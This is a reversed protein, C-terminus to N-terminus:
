NPVSLSPCRGPTRGEPNLGISKGEYRGTIGECHSTSGSYGVVVGVVLDWLSISMDLPGIGQKVAEQRVIYCIKKADEALKDVTQDTVPNGLRNLDAPVYWDVTISLYPRGDPVLLLSGSPRSLVWGRQSIKFEGGTAGYPMIYGANELARCISQTKDEFVTREDMQLTFGAFKVPEVVDCGTLVIIGTVLVITGRMLRNYNM